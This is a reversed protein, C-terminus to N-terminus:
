RNYQDESWYESQCAMSPPIRDVLHLSWEEVSHSFSFGKCELGGRSSM